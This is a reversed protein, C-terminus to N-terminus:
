PPSKSPSSGLAAVGGNPDWRLRDRELRIEPDGVRCRLPDLVLPVGLRSLLEGWLSLKIRRNERLIGDTCPSM